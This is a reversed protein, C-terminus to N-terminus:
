NKQATDSQLFPPPLCVQVLNNMVQGIIIQNKFNVAIHEPYYFWGPSYGKGGFEGIFKGAQNFCVVNFRDKDVVHIIGAQSISVEFPFNLEGMTTGKNGINKLFHGNLAYVSITGVTSLPIYISSDKLTMSGYVLEQKDKEELLKSIAFKRIFKGGTDIVLIQHFTPDLLYLKGDNGSAMSTIESASSGLISNLYFTKLHLGDFDFKVIRRGENNNGMAFITGENTVALDMPSNVHGNCFFQFRFVNNSDFILIRNNGLDAVYTEKSEPDCVIRGPEKIHNAKGPPALFQSFISPLSREQPKIPPTPIAGPLQLALLIPAIHSLVAWKKKM